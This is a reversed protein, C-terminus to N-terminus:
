PPTTLRKPMMPVNLVTIGPQRWASELQSGLRSRGSPRRWVSLEMIRGSISRVDLRSEAAKAWRGQLLKVARRNISNVATVDGNPHRIFLHVYSTKTAPFNVV